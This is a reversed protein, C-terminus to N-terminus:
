INAASGDESALYIQTGDHSVGYLLTPFVSLGYAGQASATPQLMGSASIAFLLVTSVYEGAPQNLEMTYAFKGSPHINLQSLSSVNLVQSARAQPIGSQDTAFVSLPEQQQSDNWLAYLSHGNPAPVLQLLFSSAPIVDVSGSVPSPELTKTDVVYTTVTAGNLIYLIEGSPPPPPPPPISSSQCGVLSSAALAVSAMMLCRVSM